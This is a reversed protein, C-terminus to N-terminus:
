WLLLKLSGPQGMLRVIYVGKPLAAVDIRHETESGLRKTLVLRGTIDRFYVEQGYHAGTLIVQNQAPNPSLAWIVPPATSTATATPSSVVATFDRVQGVESYRYCPQDEVVVYPLSNVMWWVRLRLPRNRVATTPVHLVGTWPNVTTTHRNSNYVLETAPDLVGDDNADLWMQFAFGSFSTQSLVNVATVAGPTLSIPPANCTEDRYPAFPTANTYTWAGFQMTGVTVPFAVASGTPPVCAAPRPGQSLAAITVYNTKTATSAGYRNAVRLSVTYSGSQAYTHQPHQQTNTSGDGFSWLWTSPAVLSTDRLQVTGSCSTPVDALFGAQPAQAAPFIVVTYDETTVAQYAPPCSNNPDTPQFLSAIQLRLRTAGIRAGLPVIFPLQYPSLTSIPGLREVTSFNGDQNYDLWATVRVWPGNSGTSWRPSEARLAYAQGQIVEAARDTYNRYGTGPVRVDTNDLNAVQVRTFYAASSVSGGTGDAPCYGPCASAVVVTHRVTDTGFANQAVLVVDYVGGSAYSHAPVAATAATSGDGFDWRYSTAGGVTANTFTVRTPGCYQVYAVAFAASPSTTNPLAEVSYDEVQGRLPSACPGFPTTGAADAWVRLRLPRRYVLGTLNTALMLPINPNQVGLGEYLLESPLDFQGNDNLDLYVRVDHANPGTTLQLATPRDAALTVRQACSFDEYGAAGDASAHDLAAGFRVRTVGFGCCYATTAPQCPAPRPADARVVVYNPKTLSDCGTANCARLRVAYTGPAAYTHQPHQQVSTTGDGFDWRWATPTNASRDQFAVTGSCSVTDAATFRALPRPVPTALVIVRYDETQSYQPSSCPMPVPANVYDAAIRLRLAIGAPATVPVTFVAQHQRGPVPSAVLEGPSFTGNQDFDIWARVSEDANPNTRIALTYTQGRVLQAARARCAYDQYGDGAGNTATDLGALTVRFIGM